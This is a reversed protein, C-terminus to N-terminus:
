TNVLDTWQFSVDIHAGTGTKAPLLKAVVGRNAPLDDFVNCPVFPAGVGFGSCHASFAPITPDHGYEAGTINFDSKRKYTHPSQTSFSNLRIGYYCGSRACGASWNTVHWKYKPNNVAAQTSPVALAITPLVSLALFKLGFM